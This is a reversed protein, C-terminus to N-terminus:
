NVTHASRIAQECVAHIAPEDGPRSQCGVSIRVPGDLLVTWAVEHDARLERYTVAPRGAREGGPTFDVFVGAPQDAIAAGLVDAVDALSRGAAPAQTLHVRLLPEAPSSVELRASGPGDTVRRVPWGAPVQLAVRGEVLTASVPQDAGREGPRPVASLAAIVLTLATAAAIVRGRRGARPAPAPTDALGAALRHLRADDVIVSLLTGAAPLRETILAALATAGPVQAPTDVVVAAGRPAARTAAAAVVAAALQRRDGTRDFTTAAPPGATDTVTVTAADIEIVVPTPPAARALLWWRPRSRVEGAAGATSRTPAPRTTM